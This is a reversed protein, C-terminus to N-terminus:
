AAADAQLPAPAYCGCSQRYRGDECLWTTYIYPNGGCSRRLAYDTRTSGKAEWYDALRCPVFQRWGRHKKAKAAAAAADAEAKTAFLKLPKREM